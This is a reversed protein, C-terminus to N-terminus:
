GVDPRQERLEIEVPALAVDAVPLVLKSAVHQKLRNQRELQGVVPLQNGPRHNRDRKSDRNGVADILRLAPGGEVVLITQTIDLDGKNNEGFGFGPLRQINPPPGV